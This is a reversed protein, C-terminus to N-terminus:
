EDKVQKLKVIEMSGFITSNITTGIFNNVNLFKLIDEMIESTEMNNDEKLNVVIKLKVSFTKTLDPEHRMGIGNVLCFQSYVPRTDCWIGQNNKTIVEECFKCRM